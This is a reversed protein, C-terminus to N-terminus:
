ISHFTPSAFQIFDKWNEFKKYWRVRISLRKTLWGLLENSWEADQLTYHKVKDDVVSSTHSIVNKRSLSMFMTLMMAKTQVCINSKSTQVSFTNDGYGDSKPFFRTLLVEAIRM